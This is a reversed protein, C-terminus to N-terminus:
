FFNIIFSIAPVSLNTYPNYTSATINMNFKKPTIITIRDHLFSNKRWHDQCNSFNRPITDHPLLVSKLYNLMTFLRTNCQEQLEETPKIKLFMNVVQGNIVIVMAWHHKIRQLRRDPYSSLENETKGKQDRSGIRWM